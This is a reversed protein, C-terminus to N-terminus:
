VVWFLIKELDLLFKQTKNVIANLLWRQGKTLLLSLTHIGTIFASAMSRTTQTYGLFLIYRNM